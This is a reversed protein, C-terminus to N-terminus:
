DAILGVIFQDYIMGATEVNRENATALLDAYVLLPPVIDAGEEAKPFNWFRNLIEINGRDDKQLKQRFIFENPPKGTYLTAIEPKLYHTLRDAAIEGGWQADYDTPDINTWWGEQRATFRGIMLKPRLRQPYAVVWQELLEKKRVLRRPRGKLRMIFAEREFAHILRNITALGVGTAEKIKEHTQTVLGPRCLLAFIVRLDAPRYLAARAPLRRQELKRGTTFIYLGKLNMYANGAADVFALNLQRLKDAQDETAYRTVLLRREGTNPTRERFLAIAAANLWPRVETKFRWTDKGKKLTIAGEVNPGEAIELGTTMQLAGLAEKVLPNTDRRPAM